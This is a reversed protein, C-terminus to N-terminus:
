QVRPDFHLAHRARAAARMPLAFRARARRATCRVALPSLVAACAFARAACCLALEGKRGSLRRIPNPTAPRAAADPTQRPANVRRARRDAWHHWHRCWLKDTIPWTSVTHVRANSMKREFGIEALAGCVSRCQRPFPTKPTHTHPPPPPIGLAHTAQQVVACNLQAASM